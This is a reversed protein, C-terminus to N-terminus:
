ASLSISFYEFFYSDDEKNLDLSLDEEMEFFLETRFLDFEYVYTLRFCYFEAFLSLCLAM